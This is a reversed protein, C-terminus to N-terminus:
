GYQALNLSVILSVFRSQEVPNLHRSGALQLAMFFRPMRIGDRDIYQGESPGGGWQPDLMHM